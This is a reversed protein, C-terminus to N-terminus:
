VVVHGILAGKVSILDTLDDQVVLELEESHSARLRITVGANTRFRCKAAFGYQGAPAKESYEGDCLLSLVGNTKANGVNEYGLSDLKKRLLIGKTLATIGGFKGDDMDTADLINLSLQMVDWGPIGAPPLAHFTVPDSSGDVAMEDDARTVTANTTFDRCVPRDLTIANVDVSLIESEFFIGGEILYLLEGASAGHGAVLNIITDGTSVASSLTASGLDRHLRMNVVASYQDQIEVASLKQGNITPV